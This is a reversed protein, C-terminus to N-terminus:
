SRNPLKGSALSSWSAQRAKRTPLNAFRVVALVVVLRTCAMYGLFCYSGLHQTGRTCRTFVVKKTQAECITQISNSALISWSIRFRVECNRSLSIAWFCVVNLRIGMPLVATISCLRFCGYM